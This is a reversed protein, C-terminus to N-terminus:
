RCALTRKSIAQAVGALLAERSYPKPLFAAGEMGSPLSTGSCFLVPVGASWAAEAAADSTVHGGLAVDLIAIAVGGRAIM